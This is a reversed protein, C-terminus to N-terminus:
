TPITYQLIPTDGPVISIMVRVPKGTATYGTKIHEAVPTEIVSSTGEGVIENDVVVIAGFPIKGQDKLAHRSIDIARQLFDRDTPGLSTM